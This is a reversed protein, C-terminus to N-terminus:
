TLIDRIQRHFLFHNSSALRIVSSSSTVKFIKDVNRPAIAPSDAPNMATFEDAFNSVDLEDAIRPVFPARVRKKAVDDWNLGQARSPLPPSRMLMVTERSEAGPESGVRFFAHQKLEDTGTRGSGLRRAPDKILLKM